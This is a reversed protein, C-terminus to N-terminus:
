MLKEQHLKNNYTRLLSIMTKAFSDRQGKYVYYAPHSVFTIDVKPMIKMIEKLPLYDKALRGTVVILQPQILRIENLLWKSCVHTIGEIDDPAKNKTFSCKVINTIYCKELLKNLEDSYLKDFGGMVHADGTRYHSPNQSVILINNTGLKSRLRTKNVSLNALPCADCKEIKDYLENLKDTM